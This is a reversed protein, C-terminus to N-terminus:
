RFARGFSKIITNFRKNFADYIPQKQPEGVNNLNQFPVDYQENTAKNIGHYIFGDATLVVQGQGPAAAFNYSVFQNQLDGADPLMIYGMTKITDTALRGLSDRTGAFVEGGNLNRNMWQLLRRNQADASLSTAVTQNYVFGVSDGEMGMRGINPDTLQSKAAITTFLLLCLFVTRM